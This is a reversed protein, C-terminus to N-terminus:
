VRERCSARGIQRCCQPENCQSNFGPEYEFDMHIDALWLMKFEKGSNKKAKPPNVPKDALIKKAYDEIELITYAPCLKIYSCMFKKDSFHFLFNNLFDVGYRHVIGDCATANMFGSCVKTGVNLIGGQVLSLFEDGFM